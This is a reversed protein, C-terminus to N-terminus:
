AAVIVTSGILTSPNRIDAEMTSGKNKICVSSVAACNMTIADTGVSLADGVATDTEAANLASCVFALAAYGTGSSYGCAFSPTLGFTDVKNGAQDNTVTLEPVGTVDVAKTWSSKVSITFGTSHSAPTFGGWAMANQVAPNEFVSKTGPINASFTIIALKSSGANKIFVPDTATIANSGISLTDGNVFTASNATTATCRFTLTTTGDGANLNCDTSATSGGGGQDNTVTLRPNGTVDVATTFVVDVTVTYGVSVDPSFSGWSIDSVSAATHVVTKTAVLGAAHGVWANKSKGKNRITNTSSVTISNAGISLVDNEAFEGNNAAMQSCRFWLVATGTGGYEGCAKTAATGSGAQSNTITLTPSAGVDVAKNFTVDAGPTYAAAVEATFSHWAVSIIYAAEEIDLSHGGKKWCKYNYRDGCEADSIENADEKEFEPKDTYLDLSVNSGSNQRPLEPTNLILGTTFTIAFVLLVILM